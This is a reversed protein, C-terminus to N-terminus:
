EDKLKHWWKGFYYLGVVIGSVPWISCLFLIKALKFKTLGKTEQGIIGTLVLAIAIYTFILGGM